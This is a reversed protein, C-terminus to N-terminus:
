CILCFACFHLACVRNLFQNRFELAWAADHHEDLGALWHIVKNSLDGRIQFGAVDDDVTSIREVIVCVAALTFEFGLTQKENSRTNRTSFLASAASWADHRTSRRGCPRMHFVNELRNGGLDFVTRWAAIPDAFFTRAMVYFHHM